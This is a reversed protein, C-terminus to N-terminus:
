VVWTQTLVSYSIRLVVCKESRIETTLRSAYRYENNSDMVTNTPFSIIIIIIIIIIIVIIIIIITIIQWFVSTNRVFFIWCSAVTYWFKIKYKYSALCTEPSVGGM